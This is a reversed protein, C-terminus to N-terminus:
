ALYYLPWVFIWILDVLHWYLAANELPYSRRATISGRLLGICTVGLVLMGILVHIAHLGTTAFYLTWFTALGPTAHGAFYDGAGGPYIGLAFHGRYEHLKIALFAAGLLITSGSLLWARAPRDRRLADVALAVLTSSTLLLLTNLSGQWKTAHQIGERFGSPFHGRYAGYLAFLGAFLLLESALFVWTGLRAAHAQQATSEFHEAPEASM